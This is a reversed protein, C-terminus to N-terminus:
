WKSLIKDCVKVFETDIWCDEKLQQKMWITMFNPWSLALLAATQSCERGGQGLESAVHYVFM